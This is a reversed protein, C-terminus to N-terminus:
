ILIYIPYFNFDINRIFLLSKIIRNSIYYYYLLLLVIANYM